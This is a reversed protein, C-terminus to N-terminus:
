IDKIEDIDFYVPIGLSQALEVEADAGKSIGELRLVADCRPLIVRDMEYWVSEPKPYINDWYHNLLPLHPFHRKELIENGAIMSNGVNHSKNGISYPSAIYILMEGGHGGM